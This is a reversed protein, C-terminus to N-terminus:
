GTIADVARGATAFSIVVTSPDYTPDLLSRARDIHALLDQEVREWDPKQFRHFENTGSTEAQALKLQMSGLVMLAALAEIAHICLITSRDGATEYLAFANADTSMTVLESYAGVLDISEDPLEHPEVGLKLRVGDTSVPFPIPKQVQYTARGSEVSDATQYSWMLTRNEMLPKSCTNYTAGIVILCSIADAAPALTQDLLVSGDNGLLQYSVAGTPAGTSFEIRQAFPSGAWVM